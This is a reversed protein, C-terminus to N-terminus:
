VIVMLPVLPDIECLVATESVTCYVQLIDLRRSAYQTIPSPHFTIRLVERM